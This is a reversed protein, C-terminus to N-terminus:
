IKKKYIPVASCAEGFMLSTVSNKLKKTIAVYLNESISNEEIFLVWIIYNIPNIKNGQNIKYIVELLKVNNSPM